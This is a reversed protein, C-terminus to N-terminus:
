LWDPKLTSEKLEPIYFSHLANFVREAAHVKSHRTTDGDGRFIVGLLLIDTLVPDLEGVKLDRM